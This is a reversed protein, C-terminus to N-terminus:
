FKPGGVGRLDALAEGQIFTELNLFCAETEPALTVAKFGILRTFLNYLRLLAYDSAKYSAGDNNLIKLTDALIELLEREYKTPVFTQQCSDALLKVLSYAKQRLAKDMKM